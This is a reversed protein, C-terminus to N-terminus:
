RFKFGAGLPLFFSCFHLDFDQFIRVGAEVAVLIGDIQLPFHIGVGSRLAPVGDAVLGGGTGIAAIRESFLRGLLAELHFLAGFCVKFVEALHRGLLQRLPDHTGVGGVGVEAEVLIADFAAGVEEVGVIVAKVQVVFLLFLVAFLLAM